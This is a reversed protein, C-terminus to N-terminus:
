IHILSLDELPDGKTTSVHGSISGEPLLKLVMSPTNAGLHVISPQYNEPHLEQDSFFGPKHAVLTIDSEPLDSFQFRGESDTLLTLPTATTLPPGAVQVLARRVPEGTVSNVVVGSLSFASTSPPPPSPEPADNNENQATACVTAALTLVLLRVVAAGPISVNSRRSCLHM